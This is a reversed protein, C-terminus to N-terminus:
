MPEKSTFGSNADFTKVKNSISIDIAALATSRLCGFFFSEPGITPLFLARHNKAPPKATFTNQHSVLRAYPGGGM